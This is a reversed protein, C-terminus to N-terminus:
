KRPIGDTAQKNRGKEMESWSREFETKAISTVGDKIDVEVQLTGDINIEQPQATIPAAGAGAAPGGAARAADDILPSRQDRNLQEDIAGKFRRGIETSEDILSGALQGVFAKGEEAARSARDIMEDQGKTRTFGEAFDGEAGAEGGFRRGSLSVFEPGTTIAANADLRDDIGELTDADLAAKEREAREAANAMKLLANSSREAIINGQNLADIMQDQPSKMEKLSEALADQGGEQLAALVRFAEQNDDALGFQKLMETQRMLQGALAPNDQVDQLTIPAGMGTNELASLTRNVIEGFDGQQKLLEIEFGGALGGRGGAAQNVFAAQGIDIDKAGQLMGGTIDAVAQRSAGADSLARGMSDILKIASDSADGMASTGQAAREMYSNMLDMPLELDQAAKRFSALNRMSNEVSTGFKNHTKSVFETVDAHDMMLGDALRISATFLDMTQGSEENTSIVMDMANPIGSLNDRYVDLQSSLRGTANATEELRKSYAANSAELADVDVVGDRMFANLSGSSAAMKMLGIEASRSQEALRFIEQTGDKVWGGLRAGLLRNLVPALRDFSQYIRQAADTGSDGLKGFMDSNQTLEPMLMTSFLSATRIIGDGTEENMSMARAAVQDYTRGLETASISVGGLIKSIDGANNKLVDTLNLAKDGATSAAESMENFANTTEEIEEDAM